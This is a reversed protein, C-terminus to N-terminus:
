RRTEADGRSVKEELPLNPGGRLVSFRSSLVSFKRM